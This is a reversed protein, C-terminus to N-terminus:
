QEQFLAPDTSACSVAIVSFRCSIGAKEFAARLMEGKEAFFDDDMAQQMGHEMYIQDAYHYNYRDILAHDVKGKLMGALELAGPLM